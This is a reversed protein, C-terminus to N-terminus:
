INFILVSVYIWTRSFDWKGDCSEIRYGTNFVPAYTHVYRAVHMCANTHCTVIYVTHTHTHTVIM